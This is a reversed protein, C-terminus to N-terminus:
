FKNMIIENIAEQIENKTAIMKFSLDAQFRKVEEGDDFILITPVIAIQYKKQIDEKSIDLNSIDCDKLEDLYTVENKQNWEANFQVVQIGDNSVQGNCQLSSFILFGILMLYMSFLKLIAKNMM